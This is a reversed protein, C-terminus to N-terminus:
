FTTRRIAELFSLFGKNTLRNTKGTDRFGIPFTHELYGM